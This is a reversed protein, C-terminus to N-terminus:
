LGCEEEVDSCCNGFKRCFPNCQCELEPHYNGDCGYISCGSASPAAVNHAVRTRNVMLTTTTTRTTTRPHSCNPQRGPKCPNECGYQQNNIFFSRQFDEFTSESNLYPFWKPRRHIGTKMAWRVASSCNSGPMATCCPDLDGKVTDEGSVPHVTWNGLTTGNWNISEITIVNKTIVLDYFGYSNDRPHSTNPPNESTIGGGGGTIFCTLGGLRKSKHYMKQKHTHGTVMLDLGYWRHLDRYFSSAHGCPFHTVLIQWDATSNALKPTVWESGEDWLKKFWTHCGELNPVGGVSSCSAGPSNYKGSCINSSPQADPDELADEVNSDTLFIDLSFNQDPYEVHQMWYPAPLVWRESVWTYAIQQDWAASFERGGWDHNGLVSLWPKGDLGEGRYINEYIWKFQTATVGNVTSMPTAGCKGYIGGWYFNDGVNLIYDPNYLKARAKMLEAVLHQAPVDVEEVYGCEQKCCAEGPAKCEAGKTGFCLAMETTNCLQKYSKRDIRYRGMTHPGPSEGGDYQVIQDELTLSGALGGWDGVAFIHMERTGSFTMEPWAIGNYEFPQQPPPIGRTTNTQLAEAESASDSEMAGTPCDNTPCSSNCPIPCKRIKYLSLQFAEFESDKTLDGYWEPHAYIGDSMAWSVLEFCKEGPTATHCVQPCTDGPKKTKQCHSKWALGTANDSEVVEMVGTPCDNTPCNRCPIPCKRSNHLVQQFDEFSSDQTLNGYWEPHAHIGDSMAWSVLEFCKEGDKATHCVQPCMEGTKKSRQCESKWVNTRRRRPGGPSTGTPQCQWYHADVEKCVHEAECATAGKWNLGGCQEWAAARPAAETSTRRPWLFHGWNTSLDFVDHSCAGLLALNFLFAAAGVVAM